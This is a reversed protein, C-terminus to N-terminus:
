GEAIKRVDWLWVGNVWTPQFGLLESTTRRLLAENRGPALIVVAARWYRLDAVANRRDTATV